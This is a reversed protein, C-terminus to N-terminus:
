RGEDESASTEDSTAELDAEAWRKNLRRTLLELIGWGIAFALVVFLEMFALPSFTMAASPALPHEADAHAQRTAKTQRTAKARCTSKTQKGVRPISRAGAAYAGGVRYGAEDSAFGV